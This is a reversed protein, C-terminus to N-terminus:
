DRFVYDPHGPSLHIQGTTPSTLQSAIRLLTSKGCGSPGVIAVMEGSYVDVTVEDIARTGDPFTKSVRDFTLAVDRNGPDMANQDAHITQLPPRRRVALPYM